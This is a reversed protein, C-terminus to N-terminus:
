ISFSIINILDENSYHQEIHYRRELNVIALRVINTAQIRSFGKEELVNRVSTIIKTEENPFNVTCQILAESALDIIELFNDAYLTGDIENLNKM